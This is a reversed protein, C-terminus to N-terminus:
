NQQVYPISEKGLHDTNVGGKRLFDFSDNDAPLWSDIEFYLCTDDVQFEGKKVVTRQGDITAVEIRDAKKIPELNNIKRITVLKRM